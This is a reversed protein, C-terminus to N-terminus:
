EDYSWPIVARISFGMSTNEYSLSGDVEALRETMGKLGIGQEIDLSGKGDDEISIQILGENRWFQISINKADGHTLANTMAEQLFRYIIHDIKRNLVWPLNGFEVRVNVGTSEMFIGTLNQISEISNKEKVKTNRLIRLSQRIESHGTKIIELAQNLLKELKVPNTKVLDTSAELMMLLNTLTYGVTDHIERTMKLREHVMSKEEAINAYQQLESNSTSLKQIILRQNTQIERYQLLLNHAYKIIICLISILLTLILLSGKLDWTRTGAEIGWFIENHDTFLISSMIVTTLLLTEATTLLIISELLMIIILFFEFWINTSFPKTM